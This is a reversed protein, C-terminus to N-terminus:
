VNLSQAASDQSARILNLGTSRRPEARLYCNAAQPELGTRAKPRVLKRSNISRRTHLQWQLSWYAMQTVPLAVCVREGHLERNSAGLPRRTQRGGEHAPPWADEIPRARGADM